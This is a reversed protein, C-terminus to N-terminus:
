IIPKLEDTGYLESYEKILGICYKNFKCLNCKKNKYGYEDKENQNLRKNIWDNFPNNSKMEKLENSQINKEIYNKIFCNPINAITFNIKNKTAYDLADNLYKKIDKLKPILYKIKSTNTDNPKIFVFNITNIKNFNNNIFKVFNILEKYNKSFIVHVVNVNFRYEISNKIGKLTKKFNGKVQSIEESKKENHSHLSILVSTLGFKKLKKVYNKDELRVGNTNIIVKNINQLRAFKILKHLDKRLTPEPWGFTLENCNLKKIKNLIENTTPGYSNTEYNIFPKEKFNKIESKLFKDLTCIICKQNCANGIGITYSNRNLKLENDGYINVYGNWVGECKNDYKCSKCNKSKSKGEKIRSENYKKNEKGDELMMRKKAMHFEVVNAFYGEMYCLPVGEINLYLNNQKAIELSKHIYQKIITLRPVLENRYKWANNTPNILVFESFFKKFHQNLKILYNTIQPLEKYNLKNITTITSIQLNYKKANDIAKILKNFSEKVQTLKEYKEKKYHPISFCLENLGAHVLKELFKEYSCMQGNTIILIKKFNLEKAYSVLKIIDKRITPEGGTFVIKESGFKKAKKIQIIAEKTSINEKRHESICCFMCNHNCSYGLRIDTRPLDM